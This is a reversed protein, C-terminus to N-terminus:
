DDNSKVKESSDSGVPRPVSKGSGVPRPVSKGSGILRPALKDGGVPRPASEDGAGLLYSRRSRVTLGPRAALVEIERKDELSPANETLFSLTYQAGIEAYVNGNAKILDEHTPPLLMEGGSNEALQKLEVTAAELVPLHRRLEAVRKLVNTGAVEHNAMWNISLEIERRLADAWGVVFVTARAKELAQIAKTRGIKSNSDLGDSILVVIRRGEPRSQLKDAALKLADYYSSKVGVRYKSSIANLAQNHDSTWDQILQAKEAYQIIAIKDSPSLGSVFQNAFEWQTPGRVVKYSAGKEWIPTEPKGYRETAGNKFTGIENALDLILVINAPDRKLNTVQRAEGEELVLVDKPQLDNVYRGQSDYAILPVAVERTEIRAIPKEGPQQQQGQPKRGSQAYATLSLSVSLCLSLPVALSLALSRPLSPALSRFFLRNEREGARGSEREGARENETRM